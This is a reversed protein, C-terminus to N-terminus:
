ANERNVWEALEPQRQALSRFRLEARALRRKVTALSVSCAAAIEPLDMEDVYRFHFAAREKLPLKSLVRYTGRLAAHAEPTVSVAPVDIFAHM